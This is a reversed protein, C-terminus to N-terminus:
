VEQWHQCVMATADGRTHAKVGDKYLIARRASAQKRRLWAGLDALTGTSM